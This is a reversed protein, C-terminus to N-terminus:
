VDFAVGGCEQRDGLLKVAESTNCPCTNVPRPPLIPWGSKSEGKDDDYLCIRYLKWCM